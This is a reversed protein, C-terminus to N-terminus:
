PTTVQATTSSRQIVGTVYDIIDQHDDPHANFWATVQENFLRDGLERIGTSTKCAADATAMAIEAPSPRPSTWASAAPDVLDAVDFGAENMCQVWASQAAIFDPSKTVYRIAPNLVDQLRYTYDNIRFAAKPDGNGIIRTQATPLCGDYIDGGVGFGDPADPAVWSGVINGYLAAFEPTGEPPEGVTILNDTARQYGTSSAQQDTPFRWALNDGSQHFDALLFTPTPVDAFGKQNMCEQVERDIADFSVTRANSLRDYLDFLAASDLPIDPAITSAAITSTPETTSPVPLSSLNTPVTAPSTSPTTGKPDSQPSTSAIGDDTPLRGVAVLGLVVLVTAAVASIALLIQRPRPRPPTAATGHPVISARRADGLDVHTLNTDIFERIQQEVTM